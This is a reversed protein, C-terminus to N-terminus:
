DRKAATAIIGHIFTASRSGSYTDALSIAESVVIPVELKEVDMEYLAIYLICKDVVDLRETSYHALLSGIRADLEERRALVAGALKEAAPRIDELARAQRVLGSFEDQGELKEPRELASCMMLMRACRRVAASWPELVARYVPFDAIRPLVAEGLQAVVSALHVVDQCCLLLQDSTDRRKDKMCYRLAALAAEFAEMQRHHREGEERLSFATLDGHLAESVLQWKESLVRYLEGSARCVHCIARAWAARYRDTEKELSLTWFLGADELTGGNEVTAYVLGLAAQRIRSISVM